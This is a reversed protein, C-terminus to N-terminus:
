FLKRGSNFTKNIFCQLLSEIVTWLFVSIKFFQHILIKAFRISSALKALFLNWKFTLILGM